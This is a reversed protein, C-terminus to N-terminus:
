RRRPVLTTNVDVLRGPAIVIDPKSQREYGAKTFVLTHKGVAAREFVYEGRDSTTVREGTEAITVECGALPSDFDGDLVVGRVSGVQPESRESADRRSGQTVPIDRVVYDEMDIREASDPQSEPPMKGEAGEPSRGRDVELRRELEKLNLRKMEGELAPPLDRLYEDVFPIALRTEM